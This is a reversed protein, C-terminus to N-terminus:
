KIGRKMTRQEFMDDKIPTKYDIDSFTLLSQHKTKHNVVHIKHITWIGEVIKIDQNKITKLYNGNRDWFEIQRAMWNNPDVYFIAKNYGLEKAIKDSVPIGEVKYTEFGDVTEISLTKYHYDSFEIKSEKKVEEYTLDTGLFYDGRDSASIRRVKRLAPMYLWQDDDVNVDPYDYTLFATGRVNRPATYFLMTRKERSGEPGFFKRFAKTEQKRVKGRRDTLELTMKRSVFEGEDRAIVNKVIEDGKMLDNAMLEAAEVEPSNFVMVAGIMLALGATVTAPKLKRRETKSLLFDEGLLTILAPLVTMSAIFSATVAIAVLGGFNNLPPVDSTLLAGFGMAIAVFNYFLARGTSPYLKVLREEIAGTEEALLQKMRDITHIAFDIGLGIAIAAFM